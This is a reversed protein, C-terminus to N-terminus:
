QKEVVLLDDLLDIVRVSTGVTLTETGEQVAECETFAGQLTLTIKGSGENQPPIPIYVTANQGLAYRLNQTGNEALKSSVAVLKALLFMALAGLVVGISLAVWLKGGTQLTVISSWGFVTMFAIVTQLTILRMNGFDAPNGGDTFDSVDTDDPLDFDPGDLGSVDSGDIGVDSDGFGILMLATQIILVVTAPVAICYLVKLASDLADWWASM